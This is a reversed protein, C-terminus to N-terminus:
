PKILGRVWFDAYQGSDASVRLTYGDYYARRFAPKGNGVATSVMAWPTNFGVYDAPVPKRMTATDVSVVTFSTFGTQISSNIIM